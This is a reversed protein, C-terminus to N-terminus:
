AQGRRVAEEFARAAFALAHAVLVTRGPEYVSAIVDYHARLASAIKRLILALGKRGHWLDPHKTMEDFEAQSHIQVFRLGARECVVRFPEATLVTVDHGRQRLRRGIGIFPHVDGSSGVPTLLFLPM